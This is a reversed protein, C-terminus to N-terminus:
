TAKRRMFLSFTPMAVRDLAIVRPEPKPRPDRWVIRQYRKDDWHSWRRRRKVWRWVVSGPSRHNVAETLADLEETTLTPYKPRMAWRRHM